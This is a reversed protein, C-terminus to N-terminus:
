RGERGPGWPGDAPHENRLAEVLAASVVMPNAQGKTANMVRGVLYGLASKGRRYSEVASPNAVLVDRIAQDLPVPVCALQDESPM